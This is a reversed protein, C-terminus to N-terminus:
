GEPCSVLVMSDENWPHLFCPPGVMFTGGGIKYTFLIRSSRGQKPEM